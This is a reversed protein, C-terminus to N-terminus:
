DVVAVAMEGAVRQQLADGLDEAALQAVVVHRGAEAALLEPDELRLRRGLLRELDGFPAAAAHGLTQVLHLGGALRDARGDRDADGAIRLVGLVRVCEDM